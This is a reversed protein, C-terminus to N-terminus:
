PAMCADLWGYMRNWADVINAPSRLTHGEGVYRVLTVRDGTRELATYMEEGQEVPVGDEDGQIILVPTKIRDAYMLPSSRVYHEAAQWPPAGINGQSGPSELWFSGANDTLEFPDAGSIGYLSILDSPGAQAVACRFRNTLALLGYVAFGGFSHGAVGIRQPDTFGMAVAQDVAPLVGDTLRSMPDHNAQSVKTSMSPYVVAYGHLVFLTWDSSLSDISGYSAISVSCQPPGRYIDGPYVGVITPLPSKGDYGEPLLVQAQSQEGDLTRYSIMKCQPRPLAAVEANQKLIIKMERSHVLYQKLEFVPDNTRDVLFISKSEDSYAWVWASPALEIVKSTAGTSLDLDYIGDPTQAGSSGVYVVDRALRPGSSLPSRGEARMDFLAPSSTSVYPQPSIVQKVTTGEPFKTEDIRGSDLDITWVGESDVSAISASDRGPYLVAPATKMRKTLNILEHGPNVLWWDLRDERASRAKGKLLLQGDATWAAPTICGHDPPLDVHVDLGSSDLLTATGKTLDVSYLRLEDNQARSPIIARTGDPSVTFNEPCPYPDIKDRDLVRVTGDQHVVVLQYRSGGLFDTSSARNTISQTPTQPVEELVGAVEANSPVPLMWLSQGTFLTKSPGSGLSFLVLDDTTTGATKAADDVVATSERGRVFKEHERERREHWVQSELIQPAQHVPLLACLVRDTGFWEPKEYPFDVSRQTLEHLERTAVEFVWPTIRDGMDAIMLLHKSDPSWRPYWLALIHAHRMPIEYAAAFSGGYIQVRGREADNFRRDYRELQDFPRAVVIALMRGDPSLSRDFPTSTRLLREVQAAEAAHGAFGLLCFLLLSKKM